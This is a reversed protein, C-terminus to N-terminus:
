NGEESETDDDAGLYASVVQPNNAVEEPLGSAITRGYDLM